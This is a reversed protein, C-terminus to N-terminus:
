SIRILPVWTLGSVTFTAPALVTYTYSMSATGLVSFSSNIATLTVNVTHTTQAASPTATLSLFGFGQGFWSNSCFYQGVYPGNQFVFTGSYNLKNAASAVREVWYRADQQQAAASLSFALCCVSSLLWHIM